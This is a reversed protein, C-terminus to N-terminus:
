KASEAVSRMAASKHKMSFMESILVWFGSAWSTSFAFLFSCMAAIALDVMVNAVAIKLVVM